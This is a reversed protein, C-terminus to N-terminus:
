LRFFGCTRELRVRYSRSATTLYTGFAARERDLMTVSSAAAAISSDCVRRDSLPSAIARIFVVAKPMKSAVQDRVVM